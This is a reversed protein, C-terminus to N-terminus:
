HHTVSYDASLVTITILERVYYGFFECQTCYDTEFCLGYAEYVFYRHRVM